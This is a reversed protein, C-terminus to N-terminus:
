KLRRAVKQHTTRIKLITLDMPQKVKVGLALEFPSMKTALHKTFNYCFEVLGLHGGWDKHDSVIHNYLYQNLMENMKEAQGNTQPHFVISFKLKTRAKKM